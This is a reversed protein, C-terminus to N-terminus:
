RVLSFYGRFVQNDFTEARYWYGSSPLPNGRYIGDWGRGNPNIRALLKGYRDYIYIDRLPLPDIRPAIYNWLDNVGDGNPSFYPPFGTPPFLLRFPREVIGCGNKDRIYLTYNGETLGNFEPSDQYPGDIALAFEYDGIGSVVTEVNFFDGFQRIFFEDIQAEQSAVVTFESSSACELLSGQGDDTTIYAEYIYNGTEELEVTATESILLLDGSKTVRYWRYGDAPDPATVVRPIDGLCIGISDPFSIEPNLVVLEGTEEDFFPGCGLITSFSEQPCDVAQGADNFPIIRVFYTNNPEFNFVFTSTTTFIAGDVVDNEFPSRGIFLLYGTAGPVPEWELLPSLAVNFQGDVPNILMTCGPPEGLSGTIFSEETCGTAIGNENYPVIEVFIETAAPFDAPPNYSLTNGVDLNLEIDGLGPATGITLRYGTARPAYNWSLNTGVNVGTDGDLPSNLNTCTPPNVENRTTFPIADCIIDPQDFFFLTITVYITTSEPLGLPPNYTTVSGVPQNSVIEGGGPTTGLSVVYGTVGVVEEWSIATDVPVNTAGATPLTLNPCEQAFGSLSLLFAM